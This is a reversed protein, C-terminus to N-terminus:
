LHRNLNIVHEKVLDHSAFGQDSLLLERVHNSFVLVSEELDPRVNILLFGHFKSGPLLFCRLRFPFNLLVHRYKV